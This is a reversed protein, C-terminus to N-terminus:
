FCALSVWEFIHVLNWFLRFQFSLPFAFDTRFHTIVADVAWHSLWLIALNPQRERGFFRSMALPTLTRNLGTKEVKLSFWSGSQLDPETLNSSRLVSRYTRNKFPRTETQLHNSGHVSRFINWFHLDAYGYGTPATRLMWPCSWLMWISQQKLLLQYGWKPVCQQPNSRKKWDGCGATDVSTEFPKGKDCTWEIESAYKLSGDPHLACGIESDVTSMEIAIVTPTLHTPDLFEICVKRLRQHSKHTFVESKRAWFEASRVQFNLLFESIDPPSSTFPDTAFSLGLFWWPRRHCVFSALLSQFFHLGHYGIVVHWTAVSIWLPNVKVPKQFCISLHHCWSTVDRMVSLSRWAFYTTKCHQLHLHVRARWFYPFV